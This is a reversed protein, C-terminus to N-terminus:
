YEGLRSFTLTEQLAVAPSSAPQQRSMLTTTASPTSPHSFVSHLPVTVHVHPRSDVPHNM